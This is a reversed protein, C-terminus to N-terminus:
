DFPIGTKASIDHLEEIVAPVLPVGNGRRTEEHDSLACVAWGEPLESEAADTELESSIAYKM